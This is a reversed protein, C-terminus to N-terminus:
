EGIRNERIYESGRVTLYRLLAATRPLQHLPRIAGSNDYHWIIDHGQPDTSIWCSFNTIRLGDLRQAAVLLRGICQSFTENYGIVGPAVDPIHISLYLTGTQVVPLPPTSPELAAVEEDTLEQEHEVM